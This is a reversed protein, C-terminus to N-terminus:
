SNSSATCIAPKSEPPPSDLQYSVSHRKTRPPIPPSIESNCNTCQTSVTYNKAIKKGNKGFNVLIESFSFMRSFIKHGLVRCCMSIKNKLKKSALEYKKLVYLFM